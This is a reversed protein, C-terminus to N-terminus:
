ENTISGDVNITFNCSSGVANSSYEGPPLYAWFGGNLSYVGYVNGNILLGYELFTTAYVSSGPCFQVPTVVTGNTGNVGPIGIPGQPGMPGTMGPVGQLGQAGTGGTTGACGMMILTSMLLMSKM